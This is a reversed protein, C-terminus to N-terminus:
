CGRSRSRGGPPEVRRSGVVEIGLGVIGLAMISQEPVLGQSCAFEGHAVARAPAWADVIRDRALVEHGATQRQM